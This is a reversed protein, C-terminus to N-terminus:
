MLGSLGRMGEGGHKGSVTLVWGGVTIITERMEDRTIEDGTLWM